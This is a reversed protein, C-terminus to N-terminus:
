DDDQSISIICDKNDYFIMISHNKGDSATYTTGDSSTTEYPDENFKSKVSDLYDAFYDADSGSIVVQLSNQMEMISTIEGSKYEPILRALDSEPWQGSGIVMREGDDGEIVLSDDDLDIDVDDGAAKELLKEGLAEGAEQEIRDKVGCTTTLAMLMLVSVLLTLARKMDIVGKLQFVGDSVILIVSISLYNLDM